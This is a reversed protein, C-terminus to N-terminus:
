LSFKDRGYEQVVIMKRTLISDLNDSFFTFISNFEYSITYVALSNGKSDGCEKWKSDPGLECKTVLLSAPSNVYNITGKFRNADILNIQKSSEELIVKNIIHLYDDQSKKAERAARSVVMDITSSVYSLYNIEIWAVCCLWFVMFGLVFEISSSGLQLKKNKRSM